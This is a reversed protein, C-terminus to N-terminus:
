TEIVSKRERRFLVYRLSGGVYGAPGGRSYVFSSIRLEGSCSVWLRETLRFELSSHLSLLARNIADFGVYATDLREHIAGSWSIITSMERRWCHTVLGIGIGASARIRGKSRFYSTAALLRDIRMSIEGKRVTSISVPETFKSAWGEHIWALDFMFGRDRNEAISVGAVWGPALWEASGRQKGDSYHVVNGNGGILLGGHASLSQGEATQAFLVLSILIQRVMGLLGVVRKQRNRQM